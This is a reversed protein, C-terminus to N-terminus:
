AQTRPAASLQRLFITQWWCGLAVLFRQRIGGVSPGILLLVIDSTVALALILLTRRRYTRGARACLLSIAAAAFLGVSTAGSGLDHLRGTITLTVGPPLRGASTQTAFTTTLVMGGAAIWLPVSTARWGDSRGAVIATAGLSGAWAAFGLVMLGGTANHVYESIEHTAPDLSPDLIHEACVAFLFLALGGWAGRNLSAHRPRRSRRRALRNRPRTM